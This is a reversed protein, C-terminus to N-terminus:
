PALPSIVSRGTSSRRTKELSSVIVARGINARLLLTPLSIIHTCLANTKAKM